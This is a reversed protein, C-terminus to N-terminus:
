GGTLANSQDMFHFGGAVYDTINNGFRFGGQLADRKLHRLGLLSVVRELTTLYHHGFRKEILKLDVLEQLPEERDISAKHDLIAVVFM